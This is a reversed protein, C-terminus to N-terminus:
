RRVICIPTINFEETQCLKIIMRCLQSCAANIIISTAGLEKSRSVMGIATMPNVFFSSGEENSIHEPLPVINKIDSVAYDAMAGGVTMVGPVPDTGRSFAVRKGVLASLVANDSGAKIVVGSGEWGPTFPYEKPKMGTQSKM